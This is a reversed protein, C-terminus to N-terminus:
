DRLTTPESTLNTLNTLKSSYTNGYLDQNDSSDSDLLHEYSKVREQNRDNEEQKFRFKNIKENLIKNRQCFVDIKKSRKVPIIDDNARYVRKANSKHYERNSIRRKRKITSSIWKERTEEHFKHLSQSFCDLAVHGLKSCFYCKVRIIEYSFKCDKEIGRLIAQQSPYKSIFNWVDFYSLSLIESLGKSTASATRPKNAFFGIEGFYDKEQLLTLIQDSNKIYICVKGSVVFFIRRELQNQEFILDHPSFYSKTFLYSISNVVGPELHSSFLPCNKFVPWNIIHSIEERLPLSLSKIIDKEQVLLWHKEYSFELYKLIRYALEKPVQYKIIIIRLNNCISRYRDSKYSNQDIIDMCKAALFGFLGGAIVMSFISMLREGTSVLQINGYGVSIMTYISWYLANVYIESQSYDILSLKNLWTEESIFMKTVFNWICANWHATLFIVFALQVFTLISSLVESNLYDEIRYVYHRVKMLKVLRILGFIKTVRVIKLLQTAKSYQYNTYYNAKSVVKGSIVWDYPFSSILDLIFWGKLYHVFIMKRDMIIQGKKLYGSNFNIVIDFFFCSTAFIDFYLFWYEIEIEFSIFLPIYVSQMLIIIFIIVDWFIKFCSQPELLLKGNLSNIDGQITIEHKNKFKGATNMYQTSLLVKKHPITGDTSQSSKFSRNYSHLIFSEM